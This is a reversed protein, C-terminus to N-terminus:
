VSASAIAADKLAFELQRQAYDKFEPRSLKTYHAITVPTSHGVLQAIIADPVGLKALRHIFAHRFSHPCLDRDIGARRLLGKFMREVSRSSLPKSSVSRRSVFLAEGDGPSRNVREVLYQQLVADTDPNWFVRRQRFTKETRIVASRDEEVDEIQLSLLEGLRMGTDHLLMIMARDRSVIPKAARLTEIIQRYETETITEHSRVLGRSVRALYLPFHIRGQEAFFRLYNHVVNLAFEICKPAYSRQISRAFEVYDTYVLMEPEKNVFSQFRTVWPRYARYASKSYSQKWSLYEEVLAENITTRIRVNNPMPNRMPVFSFPARNFITKMFHVILSIVGQRFEAHIRRKFLDGFHAAVGFLLARWRNARM